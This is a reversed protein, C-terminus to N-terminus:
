REELGDEADDDAEMGFTRRFWAKAGHEDEDVSGAREDATPEAAQSERAEARAADLQLSLGAVEETLLLIAKGAARLEENSSSEQLRMAWRRLEAHQREDM